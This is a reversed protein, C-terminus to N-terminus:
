DIYHVKGGVSDRRAGTVSSLTNVEGRIKLVGLLGFVLAEKFDVLNKDPVMIEAESKKRLREIFFNNWAGGGTVLVNSLKYENLVFAIQDTEHEVVTRMVDEPSETRHDILPYVDSLLWELGLSKPGKESYFPLNNLAELLDPIIVGSAARNGEEDYPRGFHIACLRNLPLNAPGLDFAIRQGLHDFSINSIGGLNLCAQYESFLLRDGIPVLPAGQGGLEVDLSRFDNVVSIGCVEALAAGDGIQRTVGKEPQHFVTHGHSCVYDVDSLGFEQIFELVKYGILQGYKVDLQDLEHGDLMLANRLQDEWETDYRYTTAAEIEFSWKGGENEFLAYCLDLGDLSTGSMIGIVRYLESM